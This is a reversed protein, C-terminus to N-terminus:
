FPLSDLIAALLNGTTDGSTAGAVFPSLIAGIFWYPLRSLTKKVDKMDDKLTNIAEAHAGIAQATTDIEPPM